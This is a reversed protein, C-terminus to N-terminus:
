ELNRIIENCLIKITSMKEQKDTMADNISKTLLTNAESITEIKEKTSIVMESKEELQAKLSEILENLEKKDILLLDRENELENYRNSLESYKEELEKYESQLLTIQKTKEDIECANNEIKEQARTLKERCLLFQSNTINFKEELEKNIEESSVEKYIKDTTTEIMAGIDDLKPNIYNEIASEIECKIAEKIKKNNMIAM